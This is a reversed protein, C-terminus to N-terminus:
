ASAPPKPRASAHSRTTAASSACNPVGSILTPRHGYMIVTGSMRDIGGFFASSSIIVPRRTSASSASRM